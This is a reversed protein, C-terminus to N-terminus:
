EKKRIKLPTRSLYIDWVKDNGSPYLGEEIDFDELDSIYLAEMDEKTQVNACKKCVPTIHASKDDFEITVETYNGYPFLLGRSNIGKIQKGCGKCYVATINGSGDRDIYKRSYRNDKVKDKRKKLKDKYM